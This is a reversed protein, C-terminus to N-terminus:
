SSCHFNVQFNSIDYFEECPKVVFMYYLDEDLSWHLLLGTTTICDSINSWKYMFFFLSISVGIHKCLCLKHWVCVHCNCNATRKELVYLLIIFLLLFLCIQFLKQYCCLFICSCILNWQTFHIILRYASSCILPISHPASIEMEVVSENELISKWWM